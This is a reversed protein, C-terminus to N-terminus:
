RGNKRNREVREMLRQKYSDLSHDELYEKLSKFKRKPEEASVGTSNNPAGWVNACKHIKGITDKSPNTGMPLSMELKVGGKELAQVLLNYMMQTRPENKTIMGWKPLKGLLNPDSKFRNIVIQPAVRLNQYCKNIADTATDIDIEDRGADIAPKQPLPTPTPAHTPQSVPSTTPVSPEDIQGGSTIEKLENKIMYMAKIWYKEMDIKDVGAYSFAHRIAVLTPILKKEIAEADFGEGALDDIDSIIDLSGITLGTDGSDDAFNKLQKTKSEKESRAEVPDDNYGESSYNSLDMLQEISDLNEEEGKINRIMHLVQQFDSPTKIGKFKHGYKREVQHMVSFLAHSEASKELEKKISDSLREGPKTFKQIEQDLFQQKEDKILEEIDSLHTKLFKKDQITLDRLTLVQFKNSFVDGRAKTRGGKRLQVGQSSLRDRNGSQSDGLEAADGESDGGVQQQLSGTEWRVLSKDLMKRLKGYMINMGRDNPKPIEGKRQAEQIELVTADVDRHVARDAMESAYTDHHTKLLNLEPETISRNGLNQIWRSPHPSILNMATAFYLKELDGVANHMEIGYKAGVTGQAGQKEINKSPKTFGVAWVRISNDDGLLKDANPDALKKGTKIQSIIAAYNTPSRLAQKDKESLISFNKLLNSIDIEAGPEGKNSEKGKVSNTRLKESKRGWSSMASKPNLALVLNGMVLESPKCSKADRPGFLRTFIETLWNDSLNLEDKKSRLLKMLSEPNRPYIPHGSSDTPVSDYLPLKFFNTFTIYNDGGKVDSYGLLEKLMLSRDAAVPTVFRGRGLVPMDVEKSEINYNGKKATYKKPVWGPKTGTRGKSKVDIYVEVNYKAHKIKTTPLNFSRSGFEIEKKELSGFKSSPILIGNANGLSWIELNRKMAEFQSVTATDNFYSIKDRTEVPDAELDPDEDTIVDRHPDTLDMDLGEKDQLRHFLDLSGTKINPFTFKAAKVMKIKKKGKENLGDDVNRWEYFIVDREDPFDSMDVDEPSVTERDTWKKSFVESVQLLGEGYRWKLALTWLDTNTELCTTPFQQLFDLDYKDFLVPVGSVTRDGAAM